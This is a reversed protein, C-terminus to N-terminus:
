EDKQKKLDEIQKRLKNIEAQAEDKLKKYEIDAKVKEEKATEQAKTLEIQLKANENQIASTDSGSPDKDSVLIGGADILAKIVRKNSIEFYENDEVVLCKKDTNAPITKGNVTYAKLTTSKLYKM